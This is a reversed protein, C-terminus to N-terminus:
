LGLSEKVAPLGEQGDATTVGALWKDLVAPNAKLWDAAAKEGETGGDIVEMIASEMALDFKLNSLLKGVNPCEASYGARTLTKVQADGFGDNEFGTLYVLNMKGMVPHPTWGLFAIWEKNKMSKQAQALMGQESSEVLEWGQLGSAPDDIKAQVIQNGDNGPEIGYFKKDFKDAFKGLDKVDKVGGEAVYDPVVPGYGAGTLNADLMELSKEDLYPQVNAANSPMWNDLFVDLDKNKLSEMIVPLALVQDETEYGLGALVTKFLGNQATNDTWGVDAMRVTKCSEPDAAQAAAASVAVLASALLIKRLVM